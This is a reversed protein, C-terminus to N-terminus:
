RGQQRKFLLSTKKGASDFRVVAVFRETEAFAYSGPRGGKPTVRFCTPYIGSADDNIACALDTGSLRLEDGVHVTIQKAASGLAAPKRDFVAAGISGDAKVSGVVVRGNAGLAAVYSHAALTGGKVKFCAVLKQGRIVKTGVQAECALDTRAVVFADGVQLTIHRSQGAGAQAATGLLAVLACLGALRHRM